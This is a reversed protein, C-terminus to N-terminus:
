AEDEREHEITPCPKTAASKHALRFIMREAIEREDDDLEDLDIPAALEADMNVVPQVAKGEAREIMKDAAIVRAQPPAEDDDLVARWVEVARGVHDRALEAATRARLQGLSKAAGAPQYSAGFARAGHAPGGWGPGKAPIGSAPGKGPADQPRPRKGKPAVPAAPGIAAVAKRRKHGGPIPRMDRARPAEDSPPLDTLKWRM